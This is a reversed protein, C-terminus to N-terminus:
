QDRTYKSGSMHISFLAIIMYAVFLVCFADQLGWHDAIQGQILPILAGGVIGMVLFGSAKNKIRQNPLKEIALAFITPFMISNFIGLSLLSWMALGGHSFIIMLVLFLNITSNILLLKSPTFYTLIFSGLLRGIMAGGWFISLYPQAQTLSLNAINPLHLFNILVSGASVEAGVYMFIAFLGFLFPKHSFLSFHETDNSSTSHLSDTPFDFRIFQLIFAIIGIVIALLLYINSVKNHAIFGGVLLPALVYGLSNIGQALTLRASSTKSCGLLTVLPNASVQLMVVGTALIFLALLFLYYIHTHQAPIFALCGIMMILLGLSLSKKYYIRNVIKAMPISMVFYTFFFCFQILMAETYNLQFYQKLVPILLDNILTIFGWIFFFSVMISFLLPSNTFVKDKNKM